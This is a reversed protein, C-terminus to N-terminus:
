NHSCVLEGPTRRSLERTIKSRRQEARRGEWKPKQVLNVSLEYIIIHFTDVEFQLKQAIKFKPSKQGKQDEECPSWLEM